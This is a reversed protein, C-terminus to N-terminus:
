GDFETFCEIFRRPRIAYLKGSWCGLGPSLPMRLLSKQPNGCPRSGIRSLM